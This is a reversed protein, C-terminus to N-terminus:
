KPTSSQPAAATTSSPQLLCYHVSSERREPSPAIRAGFRPRPKWFFTPDFLMKARRMFARAAPGIAPRRTSNSWNRRLYPVAGADAIQLATQVLFYSLDGHPQARSSRGCVPRSQRSQAASMAGPMAPLDCIGIRPKKRHVNPGVAHCWSSSKAPMAPGCSALGLWASPSGQLIM